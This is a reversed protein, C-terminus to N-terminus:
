RLEVIARMIRYKDPDGDDFKLFSPLMEPPQIRRLLIGALRSTISGPPPGAAGRARNKFAKELMQVPIHEFHFFSFIRLLDAADRRLTPEKPLLVLSVDFTSYVVRVIDIETAQHESTRRRRLTSRAASHLSLYDGLKCLQRYICNGAQILALALYGLAKTILGAAERTLVDWPGSIDAKLLLLQLADEDNLGGLEM